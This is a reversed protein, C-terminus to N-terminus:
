KQTSLLTLQVWKRFERMRENEGKQEDLKVFQALEQVPFSPFALSEESKQYNENQLLYITIKQNNYQWIEPVKLQAYVSLKNMFSHTLDVEVVLDPPPEIELNIQLKGRMKVENQIYFCEDAEKGVAKPKAKWTTSKLGMIELDLEESLITILRGLTWSAREHEPLPSMLELIGHNYTIRIAPYEAFIELLQEYMEWSVHNLILPTFMVEPITPPTIIQTMIKDLFRDSLIIIFLELAYIARFIDAAIRM